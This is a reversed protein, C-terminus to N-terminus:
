VCARVRVRVRVCSIRTKRRLRINDVDSGTCLYAVVGLEWLRTKLQVKPEVLIARCCLSRGCDSTGGVIVQTLGRLKTPGM